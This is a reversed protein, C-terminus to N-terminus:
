KNFNITLQSNRISKSQKFTKDTKTIITIEHTGKNPTTFSSDTNIIEGDISVSVIDEINSITLVNNKFSTFYREETDDIIEFNISTKGVQITYKGLENFSDKKNLTKKKQNPLYIIGTANSDWTIQVPIDKNFKQNNNIYVTDGNSRIYSIHAIETNANNNSSSNNKNLQIKNYVYLLIFITLIIIIILIVKKKM